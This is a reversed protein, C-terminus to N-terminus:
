LGEEKAKNFLYELDYTQELVKTFVQSTFYFDRGRQSFIGVLKLVNCADDIQAQPLTTGRRRLVADMYAQTFSGGRTSTSVDTLLAYVLAQERKKTNHMFTTLLHSKFSEDRYVDILSGPSIARTNSQDLHKLLVLCYYQILNPHGATEEYIRGVVDDKNKFSVGLHEMPTVILHQAQRRSLENLRTEQGFNYLPSQQDAVAAMADRFGAVINQCVHNNSSARLTKLINSQGRQLHILNDVEDLLFFIKHRYMRSMRELFDPFFFAYNQLHLRPLERRHLKSVVAEIFEDPSQLDSCDLYIIYPAEDGEADEKLRREIEKLLSTKGIRRIGLIIHNTDLNGLIRNLEYERGFFRSGTVPAATEYPALLSISTQSLIMEQLDRSPSQSHLLHDHEKDGIVVVRFRELLNDIYPRILDSPGDVLVLLPDRHLKRERIVDHFSEVLDQPTRSVINRSKVWIMPTRESLRLKWSSLDIFFLDYGLTTPGVVVNYKLEDGLRRLLLPREKSM